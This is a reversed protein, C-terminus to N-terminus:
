CKSRSQTSLRLYNWWSLVKDVFDAGLGAGPAQRRMGGKMWLMASHCSRHLTSDLIGCLASLVGAIDLTGAHSSSGQCPCLLLIAMLSFGVKSPSSSAKTPLGIPFMTPNKTAGTDLTIDKELGGWHLGAPPKRDPPKELNKGTPTVM